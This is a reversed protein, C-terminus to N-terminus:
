LSRVSDVAVAQSEATASVDRQWTFPCRTLKLASYSQQQLCRFRLLFTVSHVVYETDYYALVLERGCEGLREELAFFRKVWPSTFAM